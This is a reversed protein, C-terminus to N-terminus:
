GYFYKLCKAKSPNAKAIDAGLMKASNFEVREYGLRNPEFNWCKFLFQENASGARVTVPQTLGTDDSWILGFNDFDEAQGLAAGIAVVALESINNSGFFDDTTIFVNDSPSAIQGYVAMVDAVQYAQSASASVYKYSVLQEKAIKTDLAKIVVSAANTLTTGTAVNFTIEDDSRLCYKGIDLVFAVTTESGLLGFGYLYDNMNAIVDFPLNAAMAIGSGVSNKFNMSLLLKALEAKTIASASSVVILIKDPNFNTLRAAGAPTTGSPISIIDRVLGNM